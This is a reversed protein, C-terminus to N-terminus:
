CDAAAQGAVVADNKSTKRKGADTTAQPGGVPSELEITVPGDNEIHVLMMAGFRGDKIRDARYATRLRDLLMNYLASANPEGM